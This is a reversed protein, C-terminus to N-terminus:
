KSMITGEKAIFLSAIQPSLFSPLIPSKIINFNLFATFHM